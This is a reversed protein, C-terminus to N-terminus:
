YDGPVPGLGMGSFSRGIVSVVVLLTLLTLLVGGILASWRAMHHIFTMMFLTEHIPPFSGVTSLFFGGVLPPHAM